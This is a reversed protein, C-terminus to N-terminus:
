KRFEDDTLKDDHQSNWEDDDINPPGFEVIFFPLVEYCSKDYWKGGGGDFSFVYKSFGSM